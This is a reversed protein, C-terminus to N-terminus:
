SCKKDFRGSHKKYYHNVMINLIRNISTNNEYAKLRIWEYMETTVLVGVHHYKEKSRYKDM